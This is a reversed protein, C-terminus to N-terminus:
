ENIILLNLPRKKRMRVAIELIANMALLNKLEVARKDLKFIVTAVGAGSSAVVARVVGSNRANPSFAFPGQFDKVLSSFTIHLGVLQSLVKCIIFLFVHEKLYARCM